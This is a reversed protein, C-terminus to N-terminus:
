KPFDKRSDLAFLFNDYKELNKKIKEIVSQIEERDEHNKEILRKLSDITEVYEWPYVIWEKVLEIYYDPKFVSWPKYHLTAVKLDKPRLKNKIYDTVAKLTIGKDAVDDIVLVRKDELSEEIKQVFKVHEGVKGIDKYLKVNFVLIDSNNFYDSLIRLPILGGRAIGILIDPTFGSNRVMEGLKFSMSIIDEWNLVKFKLGM